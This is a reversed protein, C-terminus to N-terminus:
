AIKNLEVIPLEKRDAHNRVVLEVKQGRRGRIATYPAACLSDRPFRARPEFRPRENAPFRGFYVENPAKWRIEECLMAIEVDM